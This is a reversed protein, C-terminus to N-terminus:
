YRLPSRNDISNQNLHLVIAGPNLDRLVRYGGRERNEMFVPYDSADIRRAQFGVEGAMAKMTVVDSNQVFVYAVRDIYPLQNGAPDVKWYYPNREAVVRMAPPRNAIKFPRWTPLDSNLNHNRAQDLPGTWFDHGEARARRELDALPTYPPVYPKLYHKPALPSGQFALMELFIGYAGAFHYVVTHADPAAVEVARGDVTLWDPFVPSIEENGLIDERYFLFDESTLPHGDSWKLGKRLHFVSADNMVM